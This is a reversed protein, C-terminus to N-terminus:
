YIGELYQVILRSLNNEITRYVRWRSLRKDIKSPDINPNSTANMPKDMDKFAEIAKETVIMM